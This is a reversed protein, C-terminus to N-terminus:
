SCFQLIEEVKIPIIRHLINGIQVISYEQEFLYSLLNELMDYTFHFSMPEPFQHKMYEMFAKDDFCGAPVNVPTGACYNRM